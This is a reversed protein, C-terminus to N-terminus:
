KSVLDDLEEKIKQLEVGFAKWNEDLSENTPGKSNNLSRAVIKYLKQRIKKPIYCSIQIMSVMENRAPIMRLVYKRWCEQMEKKDQIDLRYQMAAITQAQEYKLIMGINRIANEARKEWDFKRYAWLGGIFIAMSQVITATVSIAKELNSFHWYFAGILCIIIVAPLGIYYCVKFVTEKM